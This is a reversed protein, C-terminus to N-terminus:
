WWALERKTLKENRRKKQVVSEMWNQANELQDSAGNWADQATDSVWNVADNWWAVEKKQVVSEMWNQANELQDSAGHWADQATDSVWNVADNWWALERKRQNGM